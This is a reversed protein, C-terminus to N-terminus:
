GSNQRTLKFLPAATIAFNQIHNQFFNCLGVFPRISKVDNPAKSNKIARLKMEGPKIGQPKLTFGLYSVWKDSFPCKNLNIKLHNKHLKLLVQELAELHREHTDTHILINNIYILVNQLGRLVQEMLRQFSAPCGLLGMPSTIWHFQGRDPITFATLPQSEEELKMQWFGLTLDLTLFISSNARGIDGICENIEKMSYKNIHSHQNLQWFDLMIRLGQGQKKTICFIPSNYPSHMKQVVRLKLWEDLTQEIFQNHAEPLKFQKRYIPENDKLHIGHSFDKALGLDYKNMSIAAQHRFLTNIYKAQYEEPAGLHCREETDKRTWTKKKVKPLRKYIQDCIATISNDDLPIPTM